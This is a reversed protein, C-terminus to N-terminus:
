KEYNCYIYVITLCITFYYFGVESLADTFRTANTEMLNHEGLKELKRIYCIVHDSPQNAMLIGAEVECETVIFYLAFIYIQMECYTVCTCHIVLKNEINTSLMHFLFAM